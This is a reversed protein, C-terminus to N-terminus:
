TSKKNNLELIEKYIRSILGKNSMKQWCTPQRKMEKDHAKM